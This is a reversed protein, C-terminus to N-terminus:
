TKVAGHVVCRHQRSASPVHRRFHPANQCPLRRSGVHPQTCLLKCLIACANALRRGREPAALNNGEGRLGDVAQAAVRAVIVCHSFDECGFSTRSVVGQNDVNSALYPLPVRPTHVHTHTHISQSRGEALRLQLTNNPRGNGSLGSQEHVREPRTRERKHKGQRLVTRFVLVEPHKESTRCTRERAGIERTHEPPSEVTPTRMGFWAM